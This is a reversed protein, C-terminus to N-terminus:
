QNATLNLYVYQDDVYSIEPTFNQGPPFTISISDHSPSLGAHNTKRM